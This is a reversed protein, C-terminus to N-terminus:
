ALFDTAFMDSQLPHVASHNDAFPNRNFCCISFIFSMRCSSREYTATNCLDSRWQFRSNAMSTNGAKCLEKRRTEFCGHHGRYPYLGAIRCTVIWFYSGSKAVTRLPRNTVGHQDPRAYADPCDALKGTESFHNYQCDTCVSRMTWGAM